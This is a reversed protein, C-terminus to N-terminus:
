VVVIAGEHIKEFGGQVMDLNFTDLEAGCGEQDEWHGGSQERQGTQQARRAECLQGEDIQTRVSVGGM